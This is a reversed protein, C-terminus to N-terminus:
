RDPTAAMAETAKISQEEHIMLDKSRTDSFNLQHFTSHEPSTFITISLQMIKSLDTSIDLYRHLDCLVYGWFSLIPRFCLMCPFSSYCLILNQHELSREQLCIVTVQHRSLDYLRKFSYGNSCFSTTRRLTNSMSKTYKKLLATSSLMTCQLLNYKAQVM